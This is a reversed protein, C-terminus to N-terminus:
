SKQERMRDRKRKLTGVEKREKNKRRENTREEREEM